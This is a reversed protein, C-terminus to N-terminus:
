IFFIVKIASEAPVAKAEANQDPHKTVGGVQLGTAVVELLV